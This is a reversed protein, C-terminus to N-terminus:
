PESRKPNADRNELWTESFDPQLFRMTFGRVFSPVIRYDPSGHHLYIAPVDRHLIEELRAFLESRKSEDAQIMASELIRDFEANKYGTLNFDRASKSWFLCYYNEPDFFSPVFSIRFM